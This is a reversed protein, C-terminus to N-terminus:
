FPNLWAAQVVKLFRENQMARLKDPAYRYVTQEFVDPMPYDHCYQDWDFSQHYLPLNSRPLGPM